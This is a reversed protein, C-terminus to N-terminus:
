VPPRRKSTPAWVMRTTRVSARDSDLTRALARVIRMKLARDHSPSVSGSSITHRMLEIPTSGQPSNSAYWVTTVLQGRQKDGTTIMVPSLARRPPQQASSTLTTAPRCPRGRSVVCRPVSASAQPEYRLATVALVAALLAPMFRVGAPLINTPSPTRGEESSIRNSVASPIPLNRHLNM